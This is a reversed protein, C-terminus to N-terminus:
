SQAIRARESVARAADRVALSLDDELHVQYRKSPMTVGLCGLVEGDAGFIPSAIGAIDNEADYFRSYGQERITALASELEAWPPVTRGSIPGVKTARLVAQIESPRLNALIARGLSGWPLEVVRGIEVAYRLPNPTLEADAIVADHRVPSYACLVVTEKWREVLAELFPRASRALDFRSVLQSAMLYLDRGPKYRQGATREVLGAKCMEQLLRHVTSAPLSSRETIQGLTFAHPEAAVLKLLYALRGASGSPVTTM